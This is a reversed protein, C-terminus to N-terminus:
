RTAKLQAKNRKVKAFMKKLHEISADNSLETHIDNARQRSAIKRMDRKGYNVHTVSVSFVLVDDSILIVLLLWLIAFAPSSKNKAWKTFLLNPPRYPFTPHIQKDM